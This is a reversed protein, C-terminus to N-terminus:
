QTVSSASSVKNPTTAPTTVNFRTKAVVPTAGLVRTKVALPSTFLARKVRSNVSLAYRAVCKDHSLTFVDTGCSVCVVNSGDNVANVVKANLVNAKPKSVNSNSTFSKNSVHSVCSQNKKFEKSTSKSKINLLVSKNLNISKSELRSVSSSREVREEAEKLTEEYDYLDINVKDNSLLKENYLKPQAKTAKKLRDLNQYELGTKLNPDFLSNSKTGLMHITQISQSMKSVVREHDKLKEGFKQDHADKDHEVQGGNVVMYPDDFIIGSDIQNDLSTHKSVFEADYTLEVDSDNDAPQIRAMMIVSANLEELEYKTALLMQERFYKSNHVKPKPCDRAYHSKENYNYCQVTTKGINTTTRPNRQVNEAIAANKQTFGNGANTGQNGAIRRAHGPIRNWIARADREKDEPSLDSLPQDIEKSEDVPNQINKWVLPGNDISKRMLVGEEKRYDLFRLCRSSWSVYSGKELMPARIYTGAEALAQQNTTSM